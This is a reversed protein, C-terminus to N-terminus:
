WNVSKDGIGYAAQTQTFLSESLTYASSVSCL